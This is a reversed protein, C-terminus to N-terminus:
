SHRSRPTGNSPRSNPSDAASLKVPVYMPRYALEFPRGLSLTASNGQNSYRGSLQRVPPVRGRGGPHRAVALATGRALGRAGVGTDRDAGPEPGGRPARGARGGGGPLAAGAGQDGDV